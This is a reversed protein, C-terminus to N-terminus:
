DRPPGSTRRVQLVTPLIHRRPPRGAIRNFLLQGAIRGKETHPQAVTTLGARAAEPVDDFGTITLDRPVQLGRQQAATLAGLALLDSMACVATLDPRRALLAHAADAGAAASNEPREEIALDDVGVSALVARIGQIRSLAASGPVRDIRASEAAGSYGTGGLAYTIVGMRRHRMGVLSEALMTAAARDDPGVWDSGPVELPADVVVTPLGREIVRQVRIDDAAVSYVVFGDVVAHAVQDGLEDGNPSCVLLLNRGVQMCADALGELFAATAPDRFAYALEGTLLLGVTDTRGRRLQRAAPDPGAYGQRSAAALVKARVVASVRDPRNYANSVTATSVGLEAAISALSPRRRATTM